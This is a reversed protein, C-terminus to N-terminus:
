SPFDIIQLELPYAERLERPAVDQRNMPPGERLLDALSPFSGTLTFREFEVPIGRGQLIDSGSCVHVHLHPNTTSGNNGVQGLIQGKSVRDGVKVKVSGTKMHAFVFSMGNGMDVVIHNGAINQKTLKYPLPEYPTIDLLDNRVATVVGDAVAMLEAGYCHWSELDRPDGNFLEGDALQMFDIGFRQSLYLEGNFCLPGRRHHSRGCCAEASVWGTGKAPPGLVPARLGSRVRIKAGTVLPLVSDDNLSTLHLRHVLIGPVPEGESLRVDLYLLGTQSPELRDIDPRGSLLTLLDSVGAARSSFVIRDRQADDLVELLDLRVPNASRNTILLEYTLHTKGDSARFPIPGFSTALVVAADTEAVDPEITERTYTPTSLEQAEASAPLPFSIPGNSCGTLGTAVGITCASKLLDRRNM